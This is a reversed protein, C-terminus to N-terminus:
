KKNERKKRKAGAKWRRRFEGVLWEGLGGGLALFSLCFWMRGVCVFM